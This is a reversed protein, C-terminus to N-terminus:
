NIDRVSLINQEIKKFNQIIFYLKKAVLKPNTLENNKHYEKFKHILPFLKANATRIKTQMNTNVIGPHISFIKLNNHNEDSIM